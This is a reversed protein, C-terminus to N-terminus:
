PLSSSTCMLALLSRLPGSNAHSPDAILSVNRPSFLPNLQCKRSQAQLAIKVCSDFIIPSCALLAKSWHVGRNCLICSWSRVTREPGYTISTQCNAWFHALSTRLQRNMCWSYYERQHGLRKWDM